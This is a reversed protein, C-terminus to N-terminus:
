SPMREVLALHSTPRSAKERAIAAHIEAPSLVACAEVSARITRGADRRHIALTVDINPEANLSDALNLDAAVRESWGDPTDAGSILVVKDDRDFVIGQRASFPGNM